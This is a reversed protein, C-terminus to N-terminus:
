TDFASIALYRIHYLRAVGSVCSDGFAVDFRVTAEDVRSLYNIIGTTRAHVRNIAEPFIYTSQTAM